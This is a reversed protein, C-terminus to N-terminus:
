LHDYNCIESAALSSLYGLRLHIGDDYAKGQTRDCWQHVTKTRGRCAYDYRVLTGARGKRSHLTYYRSLLYTLVLALDWFEMGDMPAESLLLLM